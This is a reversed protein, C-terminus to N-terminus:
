QLSNYLNEIEARRSAPFSNNKRDLRLAQELYSAAQERNNLQALVQGLTAFASAKTESRADDLSICRELDQRAEALRGLKYFIMGRTDLLYPYDPERQLGQNALDLAQDPDGLEFALLWALNNLTERQYPSIELAARYAQEALKYEGIQQAIQAQGLFGNLSDPNTQTYQVFLRLGERHYRADGSYALMSATEYLLQSDPNPGGKSALHAVVDDYRKQSSYWKLRGLIVRVDNPALQEAQELVLNAEPFRSQMRHLEALVLLINLSKQGGRKKQFGELERIAQDRNARANLVQAYAVQVDENDPALQLAEKVLADAAVLNGTLVDLDILFTRATINNRDLDMARRAFSRAFRFRGADKELQAKALVLEASQPNSGFAASVLKALRDSDAQRRALDILRMWATIHRPNLAVVRELVTAADQISKLTRNQLLLNAQEYLLDPDDPLRRLMDELLQRGREREAASSRSLLVKLMLRLLDANAPDRQLGTDWAQIAEEVRGTRIYFQGLYEYSKVPQENLSVLQLYDREALEPKKITEYFAARLFHAQFDTRRAVEADLFAIVEDDRGENHLISVRNSVAVTLGPNIALARDLLALAADAQRRHMYLLQALTALSVADQPNAEVRMQLADIAEDFQNCKIAIWARHPSAKMFPEPLRRLLNWAETYRQQRELLSLLRESVETAQPQRNLFDRCVAEFEADQGTSEYLNTLVITPEPWEPDEHICWNLLELIEKQRAADHPSRLWAKAQELRWVLGREGEIGRIQGILRDRELPAAQIEPLSLLYHRVRVHTPNQEALGRLLDIGATRDAGSLLLRGLMIQVKLKEPGSLQEAAAELTKRAEDVQEASRQLYALMLVPLAKDPHQQIAAHTAQLAEDKRDLQMCLEVLQMQALLSNGSNEVATKLRELAVDPQNKYIDIFAQLTYIEVADPRRERLQEVERSLDDITDSTNERYALTIAKTRLEALKLQLLATGVNDPLAVSSRRVVALAESWRYQAIYANLVVVNATPDHPWRELIQEWVALARRSQGVAEYAQALLRWPLDARPRAAIVPELLNIVTYPQKRAAAIMADLLALHDKAAVASGPMTSLQERYYAIAQEAREVDQGALYLDVATPLFEAWRFDRLEDLARNALEIGEATTGKALSYNAAARLIALRLDDQEGGVRDMQTQDMNQLYQLHDAAQDFDGRKMWVEAIILRVWPDTTNLASAAELDQLAAPSDFFHNQNLRARHARLAASDPRAEIGQDLYQKALLIGDAGQTQVVESLLVIVQEDAKPDAAMRELIISAEDAKHQAMYAKCLWLTMEADDPHNRLWEQCVYTMEGFDRTLRYLKVLEQTTRRDDPQLRLLRRYAAVAQGIREPTQPRVRLNTEAYRALWEVDDPYKSLYRRLHGAATNWQAQDLAEKGERLASRAVALRRLFYSAGFGGAVVTISVVLIIVVLFNIQAQRRNATM